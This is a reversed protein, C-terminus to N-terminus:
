EESVEMFISLSTAIFYISIWMIGIWKDIRYNNLYTVVIATVLVLLLGISSVIITPALELEYIEGTVWVRYSAAIGLGLVLDIARNTINSQVSDFL